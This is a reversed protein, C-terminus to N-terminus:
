SESLKDFSSEKPDPAAYMEDAAAEPRTKVADGDQMKGAKEEGQGDMHLVPPQVLPYPVDTETEDAFFPEEDTGVSQMLRYALWIIVGAAM